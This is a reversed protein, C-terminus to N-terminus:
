YLAKNERVTDSVHAAHAHPSRYSISTENNWFIKLWIIYIYIQLWLIVQKIIQHKIAGGIIPNSAKSILNLTQGFRSPPTKEIQVNQAYKKLVKNDPNNGEM